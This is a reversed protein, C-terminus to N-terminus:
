SSLLRQGDGRVMAEAEDLYAIYKDLKQHIDWADNVLNDRTTTGSQWDGPHGLHTLEGSIKSRQGELSTRFDSIARTLDTVHKPDLQLKPVNENAM